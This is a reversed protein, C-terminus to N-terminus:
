KRDLNIIENYISNKGHCRIYCKSEIIQTQYFALGALLPEGCDIEGDSTEFLPIQWVGGGSLGGLNRPIDSQREYLVSMELYDYKGFPWKRELGSYWLYHHFTLIKDAIRGDPRSTTLVEAVGCIGWLSENERTADMVREKCFEINWFDKRAKLTGIGLEPLIVIGMDPGCSQDEKNWIHESILIQRDLEYKHEGSLICLGIRDAKDYSRSELIHGATLICSKDNVTILTGSGLFKINEGREGLQIAILGVIYPRIKDLNKNILKEPLDRVLIKRM